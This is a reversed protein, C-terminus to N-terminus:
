DSELINKTETKYSEVSPQDFANVGMLKAIYMIEIMKFQMFYGLSKESIDALIIEAFPLENKKYAIKTGALIADMIANMSKGEIMEVIGTFIRSGAAPVVPSAGDRVASIFTTFKDRPGGLYLQGVSHLDTSGVSVTATIGAHM